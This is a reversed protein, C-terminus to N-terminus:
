FIRGRWVRAFGQKFAAWRPREWSTQPRVDFRVKGEIIAGGRITLEPTHIDGVVLAHNDLVVGKTATMNGRFVGDIMAVTVEVDGQLTAHEGIVLTGQCSIKDEFQDYFSLVDEFQLQENELYVGRLPEVPPRNRFTEVAQLWEGFHENPVFPDDFSSQDFVGTGQSDMTEALTTM